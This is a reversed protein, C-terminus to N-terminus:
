RGSFFTQEDGYELCRRFCASADFSMVMDPADAILGGGTVVEHGDRLADECTHFVCYSSFIGTVLLTKIGLDRLEYHLGTDRFASCGRKLIIKHERVLRLPELIEPLIDKGSHVGPCELAFAFVPIHNKACLSLIEIQKKVLSGRVEPRLDCAISAQMDIILVGRDYKKMKRYKM